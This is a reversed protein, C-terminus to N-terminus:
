FSSNQLYKDIIKQYRSLKVVIEIIHQKWEEIIIRSRKEFCFKCRTKGLNNTKCAEIRPVDKRLLKM